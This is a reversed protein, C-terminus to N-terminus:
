DGQTKYISKLKEMENIVESKLEEPEVVEVEGGYQLVWRKVDDLGQVDMELLLSGDALDTLQQTKHWQRERIWRSQYPTFKLKVHHTKDDRIIGFCNQLFNDIDFDSPKYFDVDTETLSLIRNLAFIRLEDRKHCHAILYWTGQQHHIAYPDVTRESAHNSHQSHYKIKVQREEYAAKQLIEFFDRNIQSAPASQFSFVPAVDDTYIDDPIFEIIKEIVKKISEYYPTDKYQKLIQENVIFAFVDSQTLQIAPLFYNEETYYYGQQKSDYKIPAGLERMNEIDRQVTKRDVEFKRAVKRCNPYRGARIREDIYKMRVHGPHSFRMVKRM